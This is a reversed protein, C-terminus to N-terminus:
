GEARAPPPSEKSADRPSIGDFLLELMESLKGKAWEPDDNGLWEFFYAFNLGLIARAIVEPERGGIEEPTAHERVFRTLLERRRSHLSKAESCGESSTAVGVNLVAVLDRRRTAVEFQRHFLLDVKQRFSLGPPYPAEFSIAFERFVLERLEEFIKEKSSFYSYLSAATYGAERAIEQMTADRFGSRVFARAAAELIDERIRAIERAKRQEKMM